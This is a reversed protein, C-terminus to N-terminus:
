LLHKRLVERSLRAQWRARGSKLLHQLDYFDGSRLGIGSVFRIFKIDHEDALSLCARRYTSLAEDFDDGVVPLNMPMDLLACRLGRERCAEVVRELEALRDQWGAQFIPYSFELWDGVRARKEARTLPRRADYHHQYWAGPASRRVSHEPVAETRHLMNFRSTGVSILVSGRNRPLAHVIREDELFTQCSTALVFTTAPKGSLRRLQAAWGGESVVSERTASGGLLYVVRDRPRYRLWSVVQVVHDWDSPLGRATLLSRPVDGSPASSTGASGDYARSQPALLAGLLLVLLSAGLLRSLVPTM